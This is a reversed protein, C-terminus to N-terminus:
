FQCTGNGEGVGCPWRHSGASYGCECGLKSLGLGAVWTSGPSGVRGTVNAEIGAYHDGQGLFGSWIGLSM